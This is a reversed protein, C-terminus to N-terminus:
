AEDALGGTDIILGRLLVRAQIEPPASSLLPASKSGLKSDVHLQGEAIRWAGRYSQGGMMAVEVEGAQAM